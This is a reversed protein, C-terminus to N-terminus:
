GGSPSPAPVPTETFTSPGKRFSLAYSAPIALWPGAPPRCIDFRAGGNTTEFLWCKAVPFFHVFKWDTLGEVNLKLPMVTGSYTDGVRIPKWDFDGTYAAGHDNGVLNRGLTGSFQIDFWAASAPTLACLLVVAALVHVYRSSSM